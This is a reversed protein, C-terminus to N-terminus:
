ATDAFFDALEPVLGSVSEARLRDFAATVRRFESMTILFLPVHKNVLHFLKTEINPDAETQLCVAQLFM